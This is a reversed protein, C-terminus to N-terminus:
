KEAGVATALKGEHADGQLNKLVLALAKNTEILSSVQQKLEAIELEYERLAKSSVDVPAKVKYENVAEAGYKANLTSIHKAPIQRRGKEISAYFTQSIGLLDAMEQQTLNKALRFVKIDIM